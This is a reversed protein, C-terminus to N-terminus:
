IARCTDPHRRIVTRINGTGHGSLDPNVTRILRFICVVEIIWFLPEIMLLGIWTMFKLEPTVAGDKGAPLRMLVKGQPNNVEPVEQMLKVVIEYDGPPVRVMDVMRFVYDENGSVVGFTQVEQSKIPILKSKEYIEWRVMIPTGSKYIPPGFGLLAKWQAFDRGTRDFGLLLEYHEDVPIHILARMEGHPVIAIPADLPPRTMEQRYGPYWHGLETRAEVIAPREDISRGKLRKHVRYGKRNPKRRLLLPVDFLSLPLNGAALENYLTKTCVTETKTFQRHLLAHGVCVDLSWKKTRVQEAVWEIFAACHDIRHRRRSRVRNAEYVALGRKASYEPTRGKASKRKPTGRRLENLVTSASCDIKAAISRLSYGLKSLQQIAGREEQGLHQGRKRESEVIIHDHCDM